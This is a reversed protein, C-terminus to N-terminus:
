RSLEIFGFHKWTLFNHPFQTKRPLYRITLCFELFYSYMMDGPHLVAEYGKAQSFKPFNKADVNDWDVQSQHYHTHLKSYAYDVFFLVHPYLYM